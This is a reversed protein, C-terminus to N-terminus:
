SMACVCGIVGGCIEGRGAHKPRLRALSHGLYVCCVLQRFEGIYYGDMAYIFTWYSELFFGTVIRESVDMREDTCM